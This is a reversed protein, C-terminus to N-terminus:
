IFANLINFDHKLVELPFEIVMNNKISEKLMRYLSKEDILSNTKNNSSLSINSKCYIKPIFYIGAKIPTLYFKSDNEEQTCNSPKKKWWQETTINVIMIDTNFRERKVSNESNKIWDLAITSKGSIKKFSLPTELIKCDSEGKKEEKFSPLLLSLYAMVFMDILVGGTLGAGDGKCKESIANMKSLMDEMLDSTLKEKTENFVMQLNNLEDSSIEVKVPSIVKVDTEADIKPTSVPM